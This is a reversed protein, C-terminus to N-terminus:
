QLGLEQRFAATDIGYEWDLDDWDSTADNCVAHRRGSSLEGDMIGVIVLHKAGKRIRLGCLECVFEKRGRVEGHRLYQWSM